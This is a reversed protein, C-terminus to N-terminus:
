MYYVLIYRSSPPLTAVVTEVVAESDAGLRRLTVLNQFVLFSGSGTLALHFVLFGRMKSSLFKRPSILEGCLPRLMVLERVSSNRTIQGGYHLEVRTRSQYGVKNGAFYEGGASKLMKELNGLWRPLFNETM